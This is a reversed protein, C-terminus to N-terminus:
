GPGDRSSPVPVIPNEPASKIITKALFSIVFRATIPLSQWAQTGFGLVETHLCARGSLRFRECHCHLHM